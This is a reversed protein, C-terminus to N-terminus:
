RFCVCIKAPRGCGDGAFTSRIAYKTPRFPLACSELLVFAALISAERDASCARMSLKMPPSRAHRPNVSLCIHRDAEVWASFKRSPLAVLRGASALPQGCMRSRGYVLSRTGLKRPSLFVTRVASPAASDGSVVKTTESRGDGTLSTARPRTDAIALDLHGVSARKAGCDTTVGM